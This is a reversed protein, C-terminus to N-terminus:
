QYYTVLIEVTWLLVKVLFVIVAISSIILFCYWLDDKSTDRLLLLGGILGLISIIIHALIVETM